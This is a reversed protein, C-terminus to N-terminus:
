ITIEEGDAIILRNEVDFLEARERDFNKGPAMHYPISHKAGVLEACRVAEAMDMNFRGDSCFFAYDLNREALTAMQNTESTDGTVYISKGDSLTLIYGVCVNIDHNPNNGAQVAEVTVYGLNFTKYEGSVLAEEHTITRCGPNQTEILDIATHDPHPHTVLILDAPVDYGEGAYPDIYIVKGESTTIRLSGHGQYLLTAMNSEEENRSSEKAQRAAETPVPTSSESAAPDSSCGAMPLTLVFTMFIGRLKQIMKMKEREFENIEKIFM